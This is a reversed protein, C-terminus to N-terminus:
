ATARVWAVVDAVVEDVPRAGDVRLDATAYLPVRRALRREVDGDWAPRGAPGARAALVAFPADLWVTRYCRGLADRVEADELTGGGTALVRVRGDCLTLAAARERARFTDWGVGAIQDPIPGHAATLVADLDVSPWALVEAVRRAVTSKGAGMFGILAV